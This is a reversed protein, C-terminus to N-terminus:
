EDGEISDAEDDHEDMAIRDQGPDWGDMADELGFPSPDFSGADDTITQEEPLVLGEIDHFAGAFVAYLAEHIEREDPKRSASGDLLLTRMGVLVSSRSTEPRSEASNPAWAADVFYVEAPMRERIARGVTQLVAVLLNATFARLTEDDLQSASMPRALLRAIRRYVDYRRQDFLRGVEALGLASLDEADLAETDRALLSRMLGLDGAAPHPRTLFFISGIAATGRDADDSTFVINTGRSLAALPFVLVDVDIAPGLGEAEGRLVYRSAAGGPGQERVIGRTREGLRRNITHIQEVVLRVQDYSNVVLAAKRPRGGPSRMAEVAREVDSLGGSAPTVLGTVIHRLNDEREEGGGSVRLPRRTVPHLKPQVYARVAGLKKSRSRLVFSPPTSIHYESAPPLWSTASVLLVNARGIEHLRRLLLRPTSDLVLYDVELGQDDPGQRYRVASFTGLISRPVSLRLETSARSFVLDRAEDLEGRSALPRADKALRQYSAITFGVTILLWVHPEIAEVSRAGSAAALVSAVAQVPAEASAAHDLALYRRLERNLRLWQERGQDSSLGLAPAYSDAKLWTGDDQDRGFFAAYMATEWLDSLASRSTATVRDASGGAELMERLLFHATLLKDSYRRALDPRSRRLKRVEDVFRLTHREFETARLSYRLVGDSVRRRNAAVMGTTRQLGVHISDDNGTLTLPLAGASDLSRQADDCEDVIVLDFTRAILEFFRLHEPCTHAPVLTDASRIHGLWVPAHVLQRQNKVRGCLSWAPCLRPSRPAEPEYIAECPAEGSAWEAPWTEAFAPLPCSQALLEVGHRARAFGGHGSAAVLEALRDAHRRHTDTSHGVLLAAAVNYRALVELCERAVEIATFLVTVRMGRRALLVCLLTIVTTKGSGPLGLLHTLGTFDLTLVPRLGSGGPVLPEIDALRSQWHLSTRGAVADAADMEGALAVLAAWEVQLPTRPREELHHQDPAPFTLDSLRLQVSRDSSLNVTLDGPTAITAGHRRTPLGTTLVAEAEAIAPDYDSRARFTLTQGDIDFSREADPTSLFDFVAAQVARRTLLEPVLSRATQVASQFPAVQRSREVSRLGSLVLPLTELSSESLLRMLTCGWQIQAAGRWLDPRARM